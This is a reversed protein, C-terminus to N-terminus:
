FLGFFDWGYGYWAVGMGITALLCVGLYVVLGRMGAVIMATIVFGATALLIQWWKQGLPVEHGAFLDYLVIAPSFFFILGGVVLLLLLLSVIEGEGDEKGEETVNKITAGPYQAKALKRANGIDRAEIVTEVEQYGVDMRVM